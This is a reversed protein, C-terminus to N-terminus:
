EDFFNSRIADDAGFPRKAHTVFAFQSLFSKPQGPLSTEWDLASQPCSVVVRVVPELVEQVEQLDIGAGDVKSLGVTADLLELCRVFPM